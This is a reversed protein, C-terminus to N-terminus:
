STSATKIDLRLCPYKEIWAQLFREQEKQRAAFEDQGIHYNGTKRPEPLHVTDPSDFYRDHVLCSQRVYAWIRDRLFWQDINPTEVEKPAYNAIMDSMSPLVGAVGGWMGALMLDTHTWWDRMVHFWKDSNLWEYVAAAERMGIVSDIDRVLFYGVSSDDAVLFRWCLRKKISDTGPKMIIKGNLRQLLEIFPEPVSDDIYFRVEWDPYFEPALLLNRLAGRLYRPDTGWLSFSIVNKKENKSTFTAPNETPLSWNNNSLKASSDKIELSKTGARHADSLQGLHYYSSALTDYIFSSTPNIKIIREAYTVAAQYEGSRSHCVAINTLLQLNDPSTELQKKLITIAAQYDKIFFFYYALQFHLNIDNKNGPLNIQNITEQIAEIKKNTLWKEHASILWGSPINLKAM